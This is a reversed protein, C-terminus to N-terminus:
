KERGDLDGRLIKEGMNISGRYSNLKRNQGTGFSFEM